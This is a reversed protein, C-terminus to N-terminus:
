LASSSIPALIFIPGSIKTQMYFGKGKGTVNAKCGRAKHGERQCRGCKIPKNERSVQNLKRCERGGRRYHRVLSM